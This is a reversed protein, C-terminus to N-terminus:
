QEAIVFYGKVSTKKRKASSLNSPSVGLHLAADNVSNFTLTEGTVHHRLVTTKKLKHSRKNYSCKFCGTGKLARDKIIATFEGHLNCIWRVKKHSGPTFHNPSFENSPSWEKSLEPFDTLLTGPGKSTNRRRTEIGQAFKCDYCYTSKSNKLTKADRSFEINCSPCIVIFKEKSGAWVTSPARTNKSSWQKTIQPFFDQLSRGPLAGPYLAMEEAFIQEQRLSAAKDLKFHKAKSFKSILKLIAPELPKDTNFATDTEAVQPNRYDRFRYIKIGLSLFFQNKSRDKDVSNGHWPFGDIEVGVGLSSIYCDIEKGEIKVRWETDPWIAKLFSYVLLEIKSSQGACTPCGTGGTRSSVKSAYRHGLSCVWHAKLASKPGITTPDKTNKEFDWEEILEPFLLALNNGSLRRNTAKTKAMRKGRCKPCGRGTLHSSPTQRFAGHLPCSILVKNHGGTYVTFEYSYAGSHKETALKVFDATNGLRQARAKEAGCLPCGNGSLHGSATQNFPGHTLCIIIVKAKNHSYECQSYDYRAGHIVRSKSIFEETTMKKSM